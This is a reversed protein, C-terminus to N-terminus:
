EKDLNTKVLQRSSPDMRAPSYFQPIVKRFLPVYISAESPTQILFLGAPSVRSPHVTIPVMISIESTVTCM